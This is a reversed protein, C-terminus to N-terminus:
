AQLAKFSKFRSKYDDQVPQPFEVPKRTKRDFIMSAACIRAVPKGSSSENLQNALHLVNRTMVPVWSVIDYAEGAAINGFCTLKM